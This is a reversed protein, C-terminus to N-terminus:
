WRPLDMCVTIHHIYTSVQRLELPEDQLVEDEVEFKFWESNWQPNLSRKCVDTKQVDAGLKIQVYYKCHRSLEWIYHYTKLKQNYLFLDSIM